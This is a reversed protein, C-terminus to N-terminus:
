KKAIINCTKIKPSFIRLIIFFIVSSVIGTVLAIILDYAVTDRFAVEVGVKIPKAVKSVNEILFIM